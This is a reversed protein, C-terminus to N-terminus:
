IEGKFMHKNKNENNKSNQNNIYPCWKDEKTCCERYPCGKHRNEKKM